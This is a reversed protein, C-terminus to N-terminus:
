GNGLGEDDDDDDVVNWIRTHIGDSPPKIVRFEEHIGDQDLTRSVAFITNLLNDKCLDEVFNAEERAANEAAQRDPAGYVDIFHRALNEIMQEFEIGSIDSVVVFTSRGFSGVGLFGNAFAQKVKGKLGAETIDSFEFAGSVAIEDRQATNAFVHDDSADFRVVRLFRM